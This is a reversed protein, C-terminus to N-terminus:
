IVVDTLSGLRKKLRTQVWADGFLVKLYHEPDGTRIQRNWTIIADGLTSSIRLVQKWAGVFGRFVWGWSWSQRMFEHHTMYNSIMYNAIRRSGRRKKLMQIYVIPAGVLDRWARSLWSQPIWPGVYLIHLVGRAGENTRLRWYDVKAHFRREIRKRLAQWPHRLDQYGPGPVTTLTLIRVVKNRAAALNLGSLLRQYARRQKPGWRSGRATPVNRRRTVLSSQALQM